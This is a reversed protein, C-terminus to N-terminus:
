RDARRASTPASAEAERMAAIGFASVHAHMLRKAPAAARRELAEILAAHERHSDPIRLAILNRGLTCLIFDCRDWMGSGADHLFSSHAMAHVQGHFERNLMRYAHVRADGAALLAGIRADITRLADLDAETWREAAM